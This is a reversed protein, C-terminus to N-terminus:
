ECVLAAHDVNPPVTGLQEWAMTLRCYGSLLWMQQQRSLLDDMWISSKWM